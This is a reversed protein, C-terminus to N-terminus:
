VGVRDNLRSFTQHISRNFDCGFATTRDDAVGIAIHPVNCKSPDKNPYTSAPDCHAWIGADRLGESQELARLLPEMERTVPFSGSTPESTDIAQECPVPDSWVTEGAEDIRGAQSQCDAEMVPHPEFYDSSCGCLFLIAMALFKRM